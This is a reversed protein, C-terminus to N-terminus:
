LTDANWGYKKKKPLLEGVNSSLNNSSYRGQSTTLKFLPFFSLCESKMMLLVTQTDLETRAWIAKVAALFGKKEEPKKQDPENRTRGTQIPASDSLEEASTDSSSSSRSAM